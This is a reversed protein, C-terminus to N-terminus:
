LREYRSRIGRSFEKGPSPRKSQEVVLWGSFARGRSCVWCVVCDKRTYLLGRVNAACRYRSSMMGGQAALGARIPTLVCRAVLAM